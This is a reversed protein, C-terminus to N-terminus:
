PGGSRAMYLSPDRFQEGVARKVFYFSLWCLLKQVAFLQMYSEREWGWRKRVNWTEEELDEDKIHTISVTDIRILAFLALTSIIGYLLMFFILPAFSRVMQWHFGSQLWLLAISPLFRLRQNSPPNAPSIILPQKTCCHTHLTPIPSFPPLGV